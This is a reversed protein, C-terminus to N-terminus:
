VRKYFVFALVIYFLLAYYIVLVSLRLFYSFKVICNVELRRLGRKAVSVVVSFRCPPLQTAARLFQKKLIFIVRRNGIVGTTSTRERLDTPQAYPSTIRSPSASTMLSSDEGGHLVARV